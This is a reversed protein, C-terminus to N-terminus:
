ANYDAPCHMCRVKRLLSSFSAIVLGVFLELTLTMMIAPIRKIAIDRARLRSYEAAFDQHSVSSLRESLAERMEDLDELSLCYKIFAHEPVPGNNKLFDKAFDELDEDDDIDQQLDDTPRKTPPEQSTRNDLSESSNNAGGMLRLEVDEPPPRELSSRPAGM